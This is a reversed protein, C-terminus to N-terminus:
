IKPIHWSQFVHRSQYLVIAHREFFKVCFSQQQSSQSLLKILMQKCCLLTEFTFNVQELVVLTQSEALDINLTKQQLIKLLNVMASTEKSKDHLLGSNLFNQKPKYDFNVTEIFNKAGVLTSVLENHIGEDSDPPDILQNFDIDSVQCLLCCSAMLYVEFLHTLYVFVEFAQTTNALIDMLRVTQPILGKCINLGSTTLVLEGRLSFSHM